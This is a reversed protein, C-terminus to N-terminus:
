QLTESQCEFFEVCENGCLFFYRACLSNKHYRFEPVRRMKLSNRKMKHTNMTYFIVIARAKAECMEVRINTLRRQQQETKPERKKACEHESCRHM